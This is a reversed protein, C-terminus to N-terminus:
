GGPNNLQQPNTQSDFVMTSAERTNIGYWYMNGPTGSVRNMNTQCTGSCTTDYEGNWPGNFFAWEAASYLFINNGANINQALSVRCKADSGACWSFDPDGYSSNAVWPAPALLVAGAGQMYPTETQQMGAFVNQAANLNYNYLWNHESSTGVLWTGKTAEVLVGRGTSIIQTPGGDIAHDATWTWLNQVYASSTSALHLGLFAARCNTTDQATCSTTVTTDGTGGITIASNFIAVDGQNAGAMNVELIIAGPSVQAVTFRM